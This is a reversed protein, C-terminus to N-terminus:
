REARVEARWWELTDRLTVDIPTHTSWGIESRMRTADGVVVPVDNPRLRAPDTTREVSVRALRLLTDLVDGM